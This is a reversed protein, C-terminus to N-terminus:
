LFIIVLSLLYLSQERCANREVKVAASCNNHFKKTYAEHCQISDWHQVTRKGLNCLLMAIVCM